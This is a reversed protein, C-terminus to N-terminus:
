DIYYATVSVGRYAWYADPIEQKTCVEGENGRMMMTTTPSIDVRIHHNTLRTDDNISNDNIYMTNFCYTVTNEADNARWVTFTNCKLPEPDGAYTETMLLKGMNSQLWAYLSPRDTFEIKKISLGGSAGGNGGGGGGNGAMKKLMALETINM